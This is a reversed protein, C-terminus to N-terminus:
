HYDQYDLLEVDGSNFKFTLRWNEDVAISFHGVLKGTLAHLRWTTVAVDAASKANNLVALQIRLRAAHKPQIGKRSGNVFFHELGKHKFLRIM